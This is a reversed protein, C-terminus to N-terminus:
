NAERRGGIRDAFRLITALCESEAPGIRWTLRRALLKWVGVVEGSEVLAIPGRVTTSRSRTKWTKSAALITDIWPQTALPGKM